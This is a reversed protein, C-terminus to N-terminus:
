RQRERREREEKEEEEREARGKRGRRWAVVLYISRGGTYGSAVM